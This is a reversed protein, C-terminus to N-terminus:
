SQSKRHLIMEYCLINAFILLMSYFIDEVPITYIRIGLNEVDNYLVVPIATLFGNVVLFPILIIAYSVFIRRIHVFSNKRKILLLAILFVANLSFTYFSYRRSFNLIAFVILIIALVWALKTYIAQDEMKPFYQKICEYIFVCCFPVAFFFMVEEIPLNILHYGTIYDANFSWIGEATFYIDWIIYGLAPFIM